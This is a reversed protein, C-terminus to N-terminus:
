RRVLVREQLRRRGATLELLYIGEPLSSIDAEVQNGQIQFAVPLERCELSLLRAKEVQGIGPWIAHFKERVPNPFLQLAAESKEWHVSVIDSYEFRGDYDVQKLRYYSLGSLPSEDILEYRQEEQTTGAGPIRTGVLNFKKGDASREVQFYDNNTETATAWRLYIAKGQPEARFHLLEVPFLTNLASTSAVSTTYTVGDSFTVGAATSLITGSSADGSVTGGLDVWSGSSIFAVRLQTYDTMDIGGSRSADYSLTVVCNNIDTNIATLNWQEEQSATMLPGSLTASAPQRVYEVTVWPTNGTNTTVLTLPAYAGADGVPFTFNSVNERKQVPGDIYTDSGFGTIKGTGSGVSLVKGSAMTIIGSSFSLLTPIYIDIEITLGGANNMILTPIEWDDVGSLTQASSGNFTVPGNATNSNGNLALDGKFTSNTESFYFVGSNDNNNITVNGEFINRTTVALRWNQNTNRTFTADHNFTNGGDWPNGGGGTKVFTTSGGDGMTGFTTNSVENFDEAIFSFSNGSFSSGTINEITNAEVEFNSSLYCDVIRFNDLGSLTNDTGSGNETVNYLGASGATSSISLTGDITAGGLDNNMEDTGIYVGGTSANVITLHGNFDSTNDEGIFIIGSSSNNNFTANGNYTNGANQGFRINRNSSNNSFVLGGNYTVGDGLNNNGTGGSKTLTIQTNASLNFTANELKIYDASEIDVDTFNGGTIDTNDSVDFKGNTFTGTSIALDGTRLTFTNLNIGDSSVTLSSVTVDGSLIPIENGPIVGMGGDIFIDDGSNPASNPVMGNGQLWNTPDNWDTGDVVSTGKWLLNRATAESTILFLLAVAMLNALLSKM